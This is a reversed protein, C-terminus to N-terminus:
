ELTRVAAVHSALWGQWGQWGEHPVSARLLRECCGSAGAVASIAGGLHSLGEGQHHHFGEPSPLEGLLLLLLRLPYPLGRLQVPLLGLFSQLIGPLVASQVALPIFATNAAITVASPSLLLTRVAAADYM